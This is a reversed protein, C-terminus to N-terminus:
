ARKLWKLVIWAMIGGALATALQPWSMMRAIKVALEQKILLNGIFGVSFYLFVFKLIAGVFVGAWYGHSSNKFNNYFWDVSLVLIVNGIMIFPVVPALIAPLLGGSLAMMSPVLCLVFASRVGVMFLTIILVANIIPGAFWQSHIFFPLIIAIGALSLFQSITRSNIFVGATENSYKM